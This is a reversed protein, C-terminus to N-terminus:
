EGVSNRREGEVNFDAVRRIAEVVEERTLNLNVSECAIEAGHYGQNAALRYWKYADIRAQGGVPSAGIRVARHNLEGLRFQASADGLDAAKRFWLLSKALDSPQGQGSAYMVGLNLHALAHKQSAAKLYWEEAQAYDQAAGEGNAYKLGLSFQAEASGRHALTETTEQDPEPAPAPSSFWRQFISKEM